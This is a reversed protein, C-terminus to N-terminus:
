GRNDEPHRLARELFGGRRHRRDCKKRLKRFEQTTRFASVLPFLLCHTQVSLGVLSRRISAHKSEIQATERCMHREVFSLEALCDGSTLGVAGDGAYTSFISESWEDRLCAPDRLVEQEMGRGELLGFLKWPYGLHENMLVHLQCGVSSLMCAATAQFAVVHCQLPLTAWRDPDLMLNVVDDMCEQEFVNRFALLGHHAGCRGDDSPNDATTDPKKSGAALDAAQWEEGAARLLNFMLNSLPQLVQAILVFTGLSDHQHLNLWTHASLKYQAHEKRRQDLDPEGPPTQEKRESADGGRGDDCADAVGFSGGASTHKDDSDGITYSPMVACALVAPSSPTPMGIWERYVRALLGHISQLLGVWGIAAEAGLWRSQPWVHPAAGAVAGVFLSSFKEICTERNACCQPGICHHVLSGQVQWDGNALMMIVARRLRSTADVSPLFLDLLRGNQRLVRLAPQSEARFDLTERIVRRLVARFSRMGDSAQKNLSLAIHKLKSVVKSLPEFVARHFGYVKHIECHAHLSSVSEDSAAVCRECRLVAGDRDTCILRQRRRFDKRLEAPMELQSSQLARYYTEGRGDALSQLWGLVWFTFALFQGDISKYTLSVRRETQLVKVIHTSTCISTIPLAIGSSSAPGGICIASQTESREPDRMRSRMPTEDYRVHETYTVPTAGQGLMHQHLAMCFKVIGHRMLMVGACASAQLITQTQRRSVGLLESEALLGMQRSKDSLYYTSARHLRHVRLGDGAPDASSQVVLALGHIAECVIARWRQAVTVALPGASADLPALALEGGDPVTEDQPSPADEPSGPLPEALDDDEGTDQGLSDSPPAGPQAIVGARSLLHKARVLLDWVRRLRRRRPIALAAGPENPPDAVGPGGGSASAVVIAGLGIDAGSEGPPSSPSAGEGDGAVSAWGGGPAVQQDGEESTSSGESALCSWGIAQGEPGADNADVDEWGQAM